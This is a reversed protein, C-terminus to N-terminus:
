RNLVDITAKTLEEEKEEEQTKNFVVIKETKREEKVPM